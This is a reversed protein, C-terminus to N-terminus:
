LRTGGPLGVYPQAGATPVESTPTASVAERGFAERGRACTKRATLVAGAGLSWVGFILGGIAVDGWLGLVVFGALVGAAIGAEAWFYSATSQKPRLQNRALHQPSAKGNAARGEARLGTTASERVNTAAGAQVTQTALVALAVALTLCKLNLSTKRSKM